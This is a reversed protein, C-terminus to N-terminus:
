KKSCYISYLSNITYNKDVIDFSKTMYESVLEIQGGTGILTAKEGLEKECQTILGDIPIM